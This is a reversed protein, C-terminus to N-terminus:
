SSGIGFRISVNSMRRDAQYSALFRRMTRLVLATEFRKFCSMIDSVVIYFGHRYHELTHSMALFLAFMEALYVLSDAGPLVAWRAVNIFFSLEYSDRKRSSDAYVCIKHNGGAGTVDWVCSDTNRQFNM